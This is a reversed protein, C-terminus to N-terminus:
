FGEIIDAYKEYMVESFYLNVRGRIPLGIRIMYDEYSLNISRSVRSGFYDKEAVIERGEIRAYRSENDQLLPIGTDYVSIHLKDDKIYIHKVINSYGSSNAQLMEAEATQRRNNEAIVLSLEPFLDNKAKPYFSKM